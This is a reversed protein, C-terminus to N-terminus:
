GRARWAGLGEGAAPLLLLEDGSGTKGLLRVAGPETVAIIILWRVAARGARGTTQRLSALPWTSM